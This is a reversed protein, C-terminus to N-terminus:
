QDTIFILGPQQNFYSMLEAILNRLGQDSINPDILRRDQFPVGAPRQRGAGSRSDSRWARRYIEAHIGDAEVTIYLAFNPDIELGVTGRAAQDVVNPYGAPVRGRYQEVAVEFMPVIRNRIDDLVNAAVMEAGTETQMEPIDGSIEVEPSALEPWTDAAAQPSTWLRGLLRIVHKVHFRM